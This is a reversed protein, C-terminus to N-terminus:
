ENQLRILKYQCNQKIQLYEAYTRGSIIKQKWVIVTKSLLNIGIGYINTLNRRIQTIATNQTETILGKIKRLETIHTLNRRIQTILPPYETPEFINNSNTM